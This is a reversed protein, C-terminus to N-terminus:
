KLVFRLTGRNGGREVDVALKQASGLRVYAAAADDLTRLPKGDIASIIDGDRLGLKWFYSGSAVKGLRIGRPLATFGVDKRLREFDGLASELESRKVTLAEARIADPASPSGPAPTAQLPKAATPAQVVRPEVPAAPAYPDVVGAGVLSARQSPPALVERAPEPAYPDIPGGGRAPPAGHPGYPDIVGAGIGVGVGVGVGTGNSGVHDGAGGVGGGAGGVGHGVGLTYPDLTVPATDAALRPARPDVVLVLERGERAVVLSDEDVEVITFAGLQDGEAVLVHARRDQDYVLAQRTEPLLKVVRFPVRGVRKKAPKAQSVQVNPEEGAAWAGGGLLGLALAIMSGRLMVFGLM